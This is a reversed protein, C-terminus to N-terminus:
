LSLDLHGTSVGAKGLTQLGYLALCAADLLNQNGRALEFLDHRNRSLWDAVDAKGFGGAGCVAKKWSGVPVLYGQASTASLIVGAVQNLQFATRINRMGALPPEEIFLVDKDLVFEQMQMAIDRLEQYRSKGKSRDFSQFYKCSGNDDLGVVHFGRIGIDVGAIM